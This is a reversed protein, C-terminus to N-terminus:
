ATEALQLNTNWPLVHEFLQVLLAVYLFRRYLLKEGLLQSFEQCVAEDLPFTRFAAM